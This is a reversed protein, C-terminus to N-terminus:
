TRWFRRKSCRLTRIKRKWSSCILRLEVSGCTTVELFFLNFVAQKQDPHLAIYKGYLPRWSDVSDWWSDEKIYVRFDDLDALQWRKVNRVALDIALYQYERFGRHYLDDIWARIDSLEAKTSAQILAKSEAKRVPTKLGLFQFQNKLYAEMGPKNTANNSFTFDLKTM